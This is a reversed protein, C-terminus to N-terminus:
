NGRTKQRAVAAAAEITVRHGAPGSAWKTLLSRADASAINELVEIARLTRLDDPKSPMGDIRIIVDGALKRAEPNASKEAVVRLQSVAEGGIAELEKVAAQRVPFDEDDLDTILKAIRGAPAAIPPSIRDGCQKVVEAPRRYLYEMGRQANAPDAAGLLRFAEDFGGVAAADSLKGVPKAPVDWVLATGDQAASALQKGDPSWALGNVFGDHREFVAVAEGTSLEWVAISGDREGIALRKTDPSFAVSMGGGDPGSAQFRRIVSGLRMDFVIVNGSAEWGALLRGDASFAAGEAAPLGDFEFRKKGTAVEWVTLGLSTVAVLRGDPSIAGRSMPLEDSKGLSFTRITKGTSANVVSVSGQGFLALRNRDSPCFAIFPFGGTAPLSFKQVQKATDVDIIQFELEEGGNLSIARRTVPDWYMPVDEDAPLETVKIPKGTAAEFGHLKNDIALCWITKGDASYGPGSLAPLREAEPGKGTKPDWIRIGGSQDIAAAFTADQALALPPRLNMEPPALPSKATGTAADIQVVSGEPSMGFVSKGDTSFRPCMFQGELAKYGEIVEESDTPYVLLHQGAIAIRTSDPSFCYEPFDFDVRYTRVRKFTRLDWLAVGASGNGNKQGSGALWRGDPSFVLRSIIQDPACKLERIHKGTQLDILTVKQPSGVAFSRIDPNVAICQVGEPLTKEPLARVTNGAPIWHKCRSEDVVLVSGDRAFAAFMVPNNLRALEKGSIPDWLRVGDDTTSISGLVKGNPSFGLGLPEPGHRLRVTGYRAVAGAPMPDGHQDLKPPGTPVIRGRVPRLAPRDSPPAGPPLPPQRGPQAAFVFGVQRPFAAGGFANLRPPQVFGTFEVIQDATQASVAASLLLVIMGGCALRTM